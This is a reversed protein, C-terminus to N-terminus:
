GWVRLAMQALNAAPRATGEGEPGEALQAGM